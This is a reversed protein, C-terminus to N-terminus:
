IYVSGKMTKAKWITSRKQSSIHILIVGYLVARPSIMCLTFNKIILSEYEIKTFKHESQDHLQARKCRGARGYLQANVKKRMASIIM